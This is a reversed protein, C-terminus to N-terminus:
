KPLSPPPAIRKLMHVRRNLNTLSSKTDEAKKRVDDAKGDIGRLLATITTEQEQTLEGAPDGIVGRLVQLEATFEKQESELSDLDHLAERVYPQMIDGLTLGHLIRDTKERAEALTLQGLALRREIGKLDELLAPAQQLRSLFLVVLSIGVLATAVRWDQISPSLSQLRPVIGICAVIGTGVWLTVVIPLAWWYKKTSKPTPLRLCSLILISGALFINLGLFTVLSKCFLPHLGFQVSRYVGYVILLRILMAAAFLRSDTTYASTLHFRRQSEPNEPTGRLVNALFRLCDVAISLLVFLVGVTQWNLGAPRL